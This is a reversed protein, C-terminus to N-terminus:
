RLQYQEYCYVMWDAMYIVLLIIFFVILKDYIGDSYENELEGQLSLESIDSQSIGEEVPLSSYVNLKKEIEGFMLTLNYTGVETLKLNTIETSVDLYSINKSPSEVRISNCNSLVNVEVTEGCVYTSEDIIIPFSYEILNKSLIIFDSLLAFNSDHLDFAFVVERNGSDTLGTFVIPNGEHALLTTFNQYLGYKVYKTVYVKDKNLDDTLLKFLSTSNKPYSLEIGNTNEVVDQVSFGTGDLSKNSGFFWITGDNPLISPTFADFIYLDFGRYSDSYDDPNITYYSTNGITQLMSKIYFPKDSVILTNYSHEKDTNYMIYKNDLMLGDQNTINISIEEFDVKDIEFSFEVENSSKINLVKSAEFVSDVYVELNINEDKEYSIVKGFIQLKDDIVKYDGSTIAFNVEKKSVNIVNINTSEYDKDTILYTVLSHNENFYEQVYKLTSNYNVSLGAPVLEDLLECANEKNTLKEYVVRTTDAAYVLTYKSGNSSSMIIEEIKDKGIELRTAGNNQMNMSGSGDLIFCYERAGNPVSIVPHAILLSFTIVILIQLILSIMGSLLPIHKKKKLFKESLTWLYTSAVIQETHKNKIIYIIILIPVGILGILGLPYLFSM